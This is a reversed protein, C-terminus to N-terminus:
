TLLLAKNNNLAKQFLFQLSSVILHSEAAQAGIEFTGMNSNIISLPATDRTQLRRTDRTQQRDKVKQTKQPRFVEPEPGRAKVQSTPLRMWLALRWSGFVTGFAM